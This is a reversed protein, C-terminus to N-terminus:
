GYKAKVAPTWATSTNASGSSSVSSTELLAEEAINVAVQGDAKRRGVGLACAPTLGGGGGALEVMQRGEALGSLVHLLQAGWWGGVGGDAKRRGVGFACAPTSGGGGALEVM